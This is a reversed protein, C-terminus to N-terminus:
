IFIILKIVWNIIAIVAILLLIFNHVKSKFEFLLYALVYPMFFVVVNYKVAAIVDLHLLSILARTMGCGPCLIGFVDRSVCGINFYKFVAYVILFYVTILLFIGSKKRM